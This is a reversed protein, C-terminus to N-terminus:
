KQISAHITRYASYLTKKIDEPLSATPFGNNEASFYQKLQSYEEPQENCYQKFYAMDRIASGILCIFIFSRCFNPFFESSIFEDYSLEDSLLLDGLIPWVWSTTNEWQPITNVEKWSRGCLINSISRAVNASYELPALLGHMILKYQALGLRILEEVSGQNSVMQDCLQM